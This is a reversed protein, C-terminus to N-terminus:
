DSLALYSNPRLAPNLRTLTGAAVMEDCLRDYEAESGDCWVVRDPQTLAAIERVWGMLRAHRVYSPAGVSAALTALSEPQNM